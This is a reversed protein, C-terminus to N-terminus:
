RRRSQSILWDRLRYNIAEKGADNAELWDITAAVAPSKRGKEGNHIVGDIPGSNVM